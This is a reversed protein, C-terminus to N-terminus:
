RAWRPPHKSKRLCASPNQGSLCESRRRKRHFPLQGAAWCDRGGTRGGFLEGVKETSAAATKAPTVPPNLRDNVVVIRGSCGPQEAFPSYPVGRNASCEGTASPTGCFTHWLRLSGTHHLSVAIDPGPAPELLTGGPHVGRGLLHLEALRAYGPILDVAVDAGGAGLLPPQRWGKHPDTGLLLAPSFAAAIPFSISALRSALFACRWHALDIPIQNSKLPYTRSIWSLRQCGSDGWACRHKALPAPDSSLPCM